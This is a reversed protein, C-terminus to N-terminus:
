RSLADRLAIFARRRHSIANKEDDGMEGYTRGDGDDPIFAVDWGFGGTGRPELAISGFVAGEGVVTESGDTACAVCRAVARPDGFAYAIRCIGSAGVSALLWRILPGPFGGLGLLELGTDEVLVPAKVLEFGAAAKSRVVEHLDLSQPEVLDLARHCLSFGLVAEAERRKSENSTVFVLDDIKV